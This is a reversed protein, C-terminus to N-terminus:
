VGRFFELALRAFGGTLAVVAFIAAFQYVLASFTEM